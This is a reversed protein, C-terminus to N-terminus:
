KAVTLYLLGSYSPSNPGEESERRKNKSGRVREKMSELREEREREGKKGKEGRPWPWDRERERKGERKVGAKRYYYELVMSLRQKDLGAACVRAQTPVESGLGEKGYGWPM